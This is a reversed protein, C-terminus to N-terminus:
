RCAPFVVSLVGVKWESFKLQRRIRVVDQGLHKDKPPGPMLLVTKLEGKALILCQPEHAWGYLRLDPTKLRWIGQGRPPDCRTIGSTLPRGSVYDAFAQNLQEPISLLTRSEAQLTVTQCWKVFGETAYLRRLCQDRPGLLVAPRVLQGLKLRQDLLRSM